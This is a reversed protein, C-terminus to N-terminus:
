CDRGDISCRTVKFEGVRVSVVAYTDGLSNVRLGDNLMSPACM